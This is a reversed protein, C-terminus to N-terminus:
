KFTGNGQWIYTKSISKMKEILPDTQEEGGFRDFYKRFYLEINKGKQPLKFLLRYRIEEKDKQSAKNTVMDNIISFLMADTNASYEEFIGYEIPELGNNKYKFFTLDNQYIESHHGGQKSIAILKEENNCNWYCMDIKGFAAMGVEYSQDIHLYGNARDVSIYYTMENGENKNLSGKKILEKRDAVSLDFVKDNPILLFFTEINQAQIIQAFFVLIFISCFRM